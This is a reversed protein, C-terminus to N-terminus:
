RRRRRMGVVGMGVVVIMGGPEPLPGSVIQLGDLPLRMTGGITPTLNVILDGTVGTAVIYNGQTGGVGSPGATAQVYTGNFAGSDVYTGTVGNVTVDGGRGATDGAVYLIVNYPTMGDVGVISAAAM